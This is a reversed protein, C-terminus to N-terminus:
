AELGPPPPTGRPHLGMVKFLSGMEQRLTL